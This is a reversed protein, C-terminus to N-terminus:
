VAEALAHMSGKQSHAAILDSLMQQALMREFDLAPTVEGRVRVMGAIFSPDIKTGMRPVGEIAGEEVDFVEHVAEVLVGLSQPGHGEDGALDVMIVCTRRGIETADMGLRASLDVVPVVAGRLNMVGRVFTPMLPLPTMQAVELIERVLEIRVAYADSGVSFRLFQLLPRDAAQEDNVEWGIPKDPAAVHHM